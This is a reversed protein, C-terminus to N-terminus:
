VPLHCGYSGTPAALFLVPAAVVVRERGTTPRVGVGHVDNLLNGEVDTVTPPDLRRLHEGTVGDIVLLGPRTGRAVHPDGSLPNPGRQTVYVYRSDPSM